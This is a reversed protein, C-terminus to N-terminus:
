EYLKNFIERARRSVEADSLDALDSKTKTDEYKFFEAYIKESAKDYGKAKLFRYGNPWYDSAEFKNVEKTIIELSNFALPSEMLGTLYARIENNAPTRRLPKHSVTHNKYYDRAKKLDRAHRLEHALTTEKDKKLYEQERKSAQIPKLFNYKLQKSFDWNPDDRPLRNNEEYSEWNELIEAIDKEPGSLDFTIRIDGTDRNHITHTGFSKKKRFLQDLTKILPNKSEYRITNVPFGKVMKSGVIEPKRHKNYLVYTGSYAPIALLAGLALTRM